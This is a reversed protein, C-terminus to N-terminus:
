VVGELNKIALRQQRTSNDAGSTVSITIVRINYPMTADVIATDTEDLSVTVIGDAAAGMVTSARVSTWIGKTNDDVRYTGGSDIAVPDGNVDTHTFTVTAESKEQVQTLTAM